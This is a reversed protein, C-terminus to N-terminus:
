THVRCFRSFALREQPDALGGLDSPTVTSVSRRQSASPRSVIVRDAPPWRSTASASM